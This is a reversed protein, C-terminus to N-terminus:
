AMERAYVDGAGAAQVADTLAAIADDNPDPTFSAHPDRGDYRRIPRYVFADGEWGGHRLLAIAATALEPAACILDAVDGDGPSLQVYAVTRGTPTLRGAGAKISIRTESDGRRWPAPFFKLAELLAM